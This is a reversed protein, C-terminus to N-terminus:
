RAPLASRIHIGLAEQAANHVTKHLMCVHALLVHRTAAGFTGIVTFQTFNGVGDAITTLRGSDPLDLETGGYNAACSGLNESSVVNGYYDM